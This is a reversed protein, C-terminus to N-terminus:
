YIEDMRRNAYISKSRECERSVEAVQLLKAPDPAQGLTNYVNLFAQSTAKERKTIADIEGQYAKLLLKFQQLKEEDPVKKFEIAPILYFRKLALEDNM